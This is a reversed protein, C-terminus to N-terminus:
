VAVARNRVQRFYSTFIAFLQLFRYARAIRVVKYSHRRMGAYGREVKNHLLVIDASIHCAYFIGSVRERCMFPHSISGLM